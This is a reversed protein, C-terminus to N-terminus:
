PTSVPIAFGVSWILDQHWRRQPAGSSGFHTDIWSSYNAVEVTFAPSHPLALRGGLALIFAPATMDRASGRAASGRHIVGLGPGGYLSWGETRRRIGINARLSGLLVGSTADMTSLTDTTAIMSPAFNVAGEVALFRTTWLTAGVGFTIAALQRRRVTAAGTPGYAANLLGPSFYVGMRPHLEWPSQAPARGPALGLTGGAVLAAVRWDV